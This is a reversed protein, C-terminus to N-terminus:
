GSLCSLLKESLVRAEEFVRIREPVIGLRCRKFIEIISNGTEKQAFLQNTKEACEIPQMNPNECYVFIFRNECTFDKNQKCSTDITIKDIEKIIVDSLKITKVLM